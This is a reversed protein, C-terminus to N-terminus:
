VFSYPPWPGTFRVSFGELNNINGLVAGLQKVRDKHVLCSLNMLMQMDGEAGKMREVGINDSHKKIRGYFERFYENGKKEIERKIVAELKHKLFYARGKSEREMMERLKKIEENDRSINSGIINRDWFIQIGFEQRGRLRSIKQVLNKHEKKLWDSVGQNSGKIIIDFGLPIITGLESAREIVRQHAKVWDKVEEEDESKYPELKCNHVVACIGGYPITYVENKEIGTKGFNVPKSSEAVCYVYRGEYPAAGGKKPKEKM